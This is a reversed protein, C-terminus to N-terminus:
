VWRRVRGCYAEYAAGLHETLVREEPLIFRRLLVQQLPYILVLGLPAGLSIAWGALIMLDAIYIPNRSWRYPGCGVLASPEERPV